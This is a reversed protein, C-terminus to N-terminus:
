AGAKTKTKNEGQNYWTMGKFKPKILTVLDICDTKFLYTEKRSTDVLELHYGQNYFKYILFQKKILLDKNGFDIKIYDENNASKILREMLPKHM